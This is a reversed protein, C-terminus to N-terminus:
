QILTGVTQGIELRQYVVRLPTRTLLDDKFYVDFWLLAATLYPGGMEGDSM